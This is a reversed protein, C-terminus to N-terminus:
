TVAHVACMASGVPQAARTPQTPSAPRALGALQAPQAVDAPEASGVEDAHAPPGGGWRVASPEISPAPSLPVFPIRLSISLSQTALVVPVCRTLM